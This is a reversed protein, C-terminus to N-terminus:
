GHAVIADFWSRFVDVSGDPDNLRHVVVYPNAGGQLRGSRWSCTSLFVLDSDLAIGHWNPVHRYVHLHVSQARDGLDAIFRTIEAHHTQARAPWDPNLPAIGDWHPDLMAVDLTLKSNPRRRAAEDIVGALFTWAHGMSMGLARIHVSGNDRLRRDIEMSIRDSVAFFEPFREVAYSPPEVQEAIDFLVILVLAALVAVAALTLGDIGLASGGIALVVLVLAAPRQARHWLARVRAAVTRKEPYGEGPRERPRVKTAAPAM